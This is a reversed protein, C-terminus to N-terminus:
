QQTLQRRWEQFVLLLWIRHAHDMKGSQHEDWLRTVYERDLLDLSLDFLLSQAWKKLRGKLWEGLPMQFGYKARTLIPHPVLSKAAERLIRKTTTSKIKFSLPMRCALEVIRYDLLPCRVELSHAMTMRDVKTLIDEALYTQIDTLMMASVPDLGAYERAIALCPDTDPRYVIGTLRAVQDQSFTRPVLANPDRRLRNCARVFLKLKKVISTGYYDTTDPLKEIIPEILHDRLFEPMFEYLVQLRRALYRDYGGFLEDGGDGSLAVTVEQRTHFALSWTPIASSDGFPEGFHRVMHPFVSEVDLPSSFERHDTDLAAAALQSWRSEDHSTGPFAISFTKIRQSAQRAVLASILTSDIGGSLFAGLPVDSILRLKVSDELLASLTETTKNYDLSDDTLPLTWYREVVVGNKDFIAKHGAPLKKVETFITEPAPVFDYLFYKFLAQQSLHWPARAGRALSNIESAFAFRNPSYCYYLPKKGLRDRALFLRKKQDDWIAFSFMGNLDELMRDEKEEYLALLVETDSNTKFSYGKKELESRIVQFNYIEGNFVLALTGHRSLMPQRASESLDLISLRSHGLICEQFEQIGAMDPGRHRLAMNMAEVRSRLPKSEFDVVGCIGCM